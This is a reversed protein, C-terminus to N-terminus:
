STQEEQVEVKVVPKATTELVTATDQMVKVLRDIAEQSIDVIKQAVEKEEEEAYTNDLIKHAISNILILSQQSALKPPAVKQLQISATDVIDSLQSPNARVIAKDVSLIAAESLSPARREKIVKEAEVVDTKRPKANTVAPTLNRAYAVFDNYNGEFKALKKMNGASANVARFVANAEAKRVRIISDKFGKKTLEEAYSTLILKTTEKDTAEVACEILAERKTVSAQTESTVFALALAVGIANLQEPTKATSQKKMILDKENYLFLKLLLCM